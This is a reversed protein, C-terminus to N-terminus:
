HKKRCICAIHGRTNDRQAKPMKDCSCFLVTERGVREVLQHKQSTVVLEFLNCKRQFLNLIKSFYQDCM